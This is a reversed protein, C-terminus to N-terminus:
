PLEVIPIAEDCMFKSTGYVESGLNRIEGTSCVIFGLMNKTYEFNTYSCRHQGTFSSAGASFVDNMTVLAGNISSFYLDSYNNDSNSNYIRWNGGYTTDNLSKLTL